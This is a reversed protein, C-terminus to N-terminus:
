VLVIPCRRAQGYIHHAHSTLMYQMQMPIASGLPPDLIKILPHPDYNERGRCRKAKEKREDKRGEKRGKGEDEM